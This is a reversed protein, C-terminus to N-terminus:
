KDIRANIRRVFYKFIKIDFIVNDGNSFINNSISFSNSYLESIKNGNEYLEEKILEGNKDFYIQKNDKKGNTYNEEAILYRSYYYYQKGNKLGNEYNEEFQLYKFVFHWGYQKGELKNDKYNNEYIKNGNAHWHFNQTKILKDDLYTEKKIIKKTEPIYTEEVTIHPEEKLKLGKLLKELNPIDNMYDLYGNITYQIIDVPLDNIYYEDESTIDKLEINKNLM